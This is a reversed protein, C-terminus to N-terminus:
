ELFAVFFGAIKTLHNHKVYPLDRTLGVTCHGTIKPTKTLEKL